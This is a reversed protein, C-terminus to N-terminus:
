SDLAQVIMEQLEGLWYYSEQLPMAAEDTRGEDDDSEIGLRNAITLRLDTITSLWQQASHGRLLIGGLASAIGDDPAEDDDAAMDVTLAARVAQANAIKRETLGTATFRRFEAAAEADDRYANPLLRQLAPDTDGQLVEVLEELLGALFMRELASLDVSVAAADVRSVWTM